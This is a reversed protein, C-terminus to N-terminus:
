AVEGSTVGKLGIITGDTAAVTRIGTHRQIDRAAYLPKDRLMRAGFHQIVLLEPRAIDALKTATATTFHTKYDENGPRLVNAILIHCDKFQRALRQSYATDSTYGITCNPTHLKLGIVGEADHKADMAEFILEGMDKKEGPQLNVIQKLLDRYKPLLWSGRQTVARPAILTGKTKRVGDLTIAAILANIDNAHDIHHHSAFIVDTSQPNVGYDAAKSLAGPGPDVHIQWNTINIVFGATSRYQNAFVVRGGGTGLFTIKDVM